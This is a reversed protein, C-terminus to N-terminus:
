ELGEVDATILLSMVSSAGARHPDVTAQSFNSRNAYRQSVNWDAFPNVAPVVFKPGLMHGSRYSEFIEWADSPKSAPENIHYREGRVLPAGKFKETLAKLGCEAAIGFLHDANAWRQQQYLVEADDFHREHADYFDEVM